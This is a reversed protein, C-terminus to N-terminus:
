PGPENYLTELWCIRQAAFATYTGIGAGWSLCKGKGSYDIGAGGIDLVGVAYGLSQGELNELCSANSCYLGSIGLSAYIPLPVAPGECKIKIPEIISTALPSIQGLFYSIYLGEDWDEYGVSEASLGAGIWQGSKSDPCRKSRCCNNEIYVMKYSLVDGSSPDKLTFHVEGMGQAPKVLKFFYYKILWRIVLIDNEGGGQPFRITGSPDM